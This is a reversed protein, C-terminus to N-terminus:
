ANGNFAMNSFSKSIPDYELGWFVRGGDCIKMAVKKWDVPEDLFPRHVQFEGFANIYIIQRGNVVFGVYQLYLKEASKLIKPYNSALFKSLEIEMETLQSASPVWTAQVGSVGRRSCQTTLRM